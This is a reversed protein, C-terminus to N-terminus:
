LVRRVLHISRVEQSTRALTRATLRRRGQARTWGRVARSTGHAKHGDCLEVREKETVSAEGFVSVEIVITFGGPIVMDVARDLMCLCGDADLRGVDGTKVWGDVIREAAAKLNNAVPLAETQGNGQYM